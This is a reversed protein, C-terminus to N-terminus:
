GLVPKEVVVMAFTKEMDLFRKADEGAAAMEPSNLAKGMADADAFWLEGIGDPAGVNPAGESHNQVWKLLGPVKRVTAVHQDGQWQAMSQEHTLDNRRFLVFVMKAGASSGAAGSAHSFLLPAACVILSARGLTKFLLRRQAGPEPFERDRNPTVINRRKM